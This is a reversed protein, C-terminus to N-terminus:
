NYKVSCGYPKTEAISVSKGAKLEDIAQKVYDVYDGKVKGRPANDHAGQYVIKGQQDINKLFDLNKTM